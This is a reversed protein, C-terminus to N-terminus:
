VACDAARRTLMDQERRNTTLAAATIFAARAEEHRGLRQLLDGHV